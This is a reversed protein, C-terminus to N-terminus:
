QRLVTAQVTASPLDIATVANPNTGYLNITDAVVVVKLAMNTSAWSDPWSIAVPDGAVAGTVTITGLLATVTAAVSAPNITASGQIVKTIQNTATAGGVRIGGAKLVAFVSAAGVQLDMLLSAAASATDTVNLKLATFTVAGANWDQALNLIPQSTTVRFPSATLGTGAAESSIQNGTLALRVYNSADTFTGYIRSTQATTSNQQALVNAADRLLFLDQAGSSTTGWSLPNALQLGGTTPNFRGAEALTTTAAVQFTIAGGAGPTGSAGGLGGQIIVTGGVGGTLSGVGGAGGTLTMNGGSAGATGTGLGGAGSTFTIAGGSSNGKSAGGQINFAGGSRSVTNDGGAAGGLISVTGGDGGSGISSGDRGQLALAGGAAGAIAAASGGRVIVVGGTGGTSSGVGGTGGSITIAGGNAGATATGVGGTGATITIAGGTSSGISNGATITVAGGSRSVTNNGGATGGALTAAGGDGGSGTSSGFRGFVVVAGGAAGAMAAPEGGRLNASGGNGGSTTGIGGKGGDLVLLGGAGGVNSTGGSSAGGTGATINIRGGAGGTNTTAGAVTATGGVGGNINMEGGAGGTSSTTALTALGGAGTQITITSGSGGVGTTAITTNGGAAGKVFLTREAATGPTTAVSAVVPTTVSFTSAIGDIPTNTGVFARNNTNDYFLNANDESVLGAPGVFLISGETFTTLTLSDAVVPGGAASNEYIRCLLETQVAALQQESLCTFCNGTSLIENIDCAM